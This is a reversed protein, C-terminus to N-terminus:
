ILLVFNCRSHELYKPEDVLSGTRKQATLDDTQAPNDITSVFSRIGISISTPQFGTQLFPQVTYVRPLTIFIGCTTAAPLQERHTM